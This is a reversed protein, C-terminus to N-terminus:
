PMTQSSLPTSRDASWTPEGPGPDPVHPTLEAPGACVVTRLLVGDVAAEVVSQPDTDSAIFRIRLLSTPSVFDAVRFSKLFWQGDTGSGAPGVTELPTWTSGGDSSIRVQLIDQFANSGTTTSFWRRYSVVTDPDSADLVPSTPVTSGGDVDSNCQGSRGWLAKPYRAGSSNALSLGSDVPRILVSERERKPVPDPVLAVGSGRLQWRAVYSAQRLRQTKAYPRDVSFTAAQKEYGRQAARSWQAIGFGGVLLAVGM